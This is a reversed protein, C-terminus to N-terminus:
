WTSFCVFGWIQESNNWSLPFCPIGLADTGDLTDPLSHSLQWIEVIAELLEGSGVLTNVSRSISAWITWRHRDFSGLLLSRWCAIVRPLVEWCQLIWPLTPLALSHSPLFADSRVGFSRWTLSITNRNRHFIAGCSCTDLQLLASCLRDSASGSQLPIDRFCICDEGM